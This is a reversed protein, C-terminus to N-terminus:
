RAKRRILLQVLVGTVAVVVFTGAFVIALITLAHDKLLAYANMLGVVPPVFLLTFNSLLLDSTEGVQEVGLLGTLLAGLLLIMGLVSGPIPIGLLLAAAEGAFYFAVIITLQKIINM